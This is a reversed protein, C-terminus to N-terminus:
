LPRLAVDSHRYPYRGCRCGSHFGADLAITAMAPEWYGLVGLLFTMVAVSATMKLNRSAGYALASIACLMVWWPVAVLAQEIFELFDLLPYFAVELQEGWNMVIWDFGNDIQDRLKKIDVVEPFNSSM